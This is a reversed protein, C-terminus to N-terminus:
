RRGTSRTMAAKRLNVNNFPARDNNLAVYWLTNLPTVHYQGDGLQGRLDRRARRQSAAPVGSMDYDAAGSRVQELSQTPTVGVNIQITDANAPRSGPYYQNAELDRQQGEGPRRHLLARGVPVGIRRQRRHANPRSRRSSRRALKATFAGDPEELEIALKNGRVHVGSATSAKGSYVAKAGVIGEMYLIAPSEIGKQLARNIAFAFERGDGSTGDSFRFGPKVVITYTKGDASILPFGAAAERVLGAARPRRSIRTPTSSSAPRTSSSGRASHLVALSPDTFDFDRPRQREADGARRRRRAATPRESVAPRRSATGKVDHAAVGLVYAQRLAPRSVRLGTTKVSAIRRGGRYVHYGAVRAKDASATWSLSLSTRGSATVRPATPARPVARQSGTSWGAAAAALGVLGACLTVVALRIAM